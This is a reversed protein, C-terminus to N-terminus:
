EDGGNKTFINRFDIPNEPIDRARRVHANEHIKVAEAACIQVDGEFVFADKPPYNDFRVEIRM